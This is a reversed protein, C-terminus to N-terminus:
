GGWEDEGGPCDAVGDGVRSAPVRLGGSGGCVFGSGGVGACAATGPEDSGDPCDCYDDNVAACPITLPPPPALAGGGPDVRRGASGAADLALGAGCEFTSTCCYRAVDDPAVGRACAPSSAASDLTAATPPAAVQLRAVRRHMAVVALVALALVAVRPRTGAAAARSRARLLPATRMPPTPRPPQNLSAATPRTGHHLYLCSTPPSHPNSTSKPLAHPALPPRLVGENQFIGLTGAGRGTKGGRAKGGKTFVSHKGERLHALLVTCFLFFCFVLCDEGCERLSCGGRAGGGGAVRKTLRRWADAVAVAARAGDLLAALAAGRVADAAADAGRSPSVGGLDLRALRPAAAVLAAVDAARPRASPRLVPVVGSTAGAPALCLTRLSTASRLSRLAARADLAACGAVDLTALRPLRGLASLAAPSAICGGRLSLTVLRPAASPLARVGVDGVGAGPLVDGATLATLAPALALAPVDEDSFSTGAVDLSALAPTAALLAALPPGSGADDTHALRLSRLARGGGGARLGAALLTGLPVGSATSSSCGAVDLNTLSHARGLTAADAATLAAGRLTVGTLSRGGGPAAALAALAAPVAVSPDCWPDCGAM